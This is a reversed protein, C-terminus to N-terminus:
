RTLRRVSESNLSTLDQISGDRMDTLVQPANERFHSTKEDDALNSAFINEVEVELSRLKKVDENIMRQITEMRTQVNERSSSDGIFNALVDENNYKFAGFIKQQDDASVADTSQLKKIGERIVQNKTLSTQYSRVQEELSELHNNVRLTIDVSDTKQSKKTETKESQIKAQQNKINQASNLIGEASVKM